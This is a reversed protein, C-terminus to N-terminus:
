FPHCVIPTIKANKLYNSQSAVIGYTARFLLIVAVLTGLYKIYRANNQHKNELWKMGWFSAQLAPLTAIGFSIMSLFGMWANPQILAVSLGGLVLGCPMLGNSMGLLFYGAVGIKSGIKQIPKGLFTYLFGLLSDGIKGLTLLLLIFGSFFYFYYWSSPLIWVSGLKAVIFGLLGYMFIRGLQYLISRTRTKPHTFSQVKVHMMLPGCMAICHWSGALGILFTYYWTQM